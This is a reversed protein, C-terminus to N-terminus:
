APVALGSVDAAAVFRDPRVAVARAGYRRLWPGLVGELDVLEDPGETYASRPRVARYRAGLADWQRREEESLLTSPRRRRWCCSGTAWCRTWARWGARRTASSRSPCWGASSARTASRAACCGAELVPPATLPPEFPTCLDQPPPASLAAREDDSIEQKIM